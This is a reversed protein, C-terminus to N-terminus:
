CNSHLTKIGSPTQIHAVLYPTKETSLSHIEVLHNVEIATLISAIWDPQPHYIQLKQLSCGMDQMNTSPHPTTHWQIVYPVMGGALLRGDDPVGFHWHLNGRSVPEPSGFSVSSKTQFTHIDTTNVVWTLLQPQKEIKAQVFPDNLGYWRPKQPPAGLPDIAIVELFCGNGLSMLHNHTGMTPHNGGKPIDVGLYTKVYEVGQQLTKAGIVLHDLAVKM